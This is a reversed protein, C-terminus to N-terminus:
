ATVARKLSILIATVNDRSNRKHIAEEVLDQVVRQPDQESTPMLSLRRRVFDVAEQSSFVDFLGDCALLLFEDTPQLIEHRIEPVAVVLPAEGTKLKKYDADGFARSVALRGLVRRNKVFGGAMLIRQQEDPRDPKHDKSLQVAVGRRSLVVRADGCNACWLTKGLIVVAVAACGPGSRTVIANSAGKSGADTPLPQALFVEDIITFGRTLSFHMESALMELPVNDMGGTRAFMLEQFVHALHDRVFKACERGGHGDYVAFFSSDITSSLQLDHIASEEDEMTSRCGQQGAIGCNFRLVVFELSGIEFVDGPQLREHYLPPLSLWVSEQRSQTDKTHIAAIPIDRPRVPSMWNTGPIGSLDEYSDFPLLPDHVDRCAIRAVYEGSDFQIELDPLYCTSPSATDFLADLSMSLKLEPNQRRYTKLWRAARSIKIRRSETIETRFHRLEKSELKREFALYTPPPVSDAASVQGAAGRSMKDGCSSSSTERVVDTVESSKSFNHLKSFSMAVLLCAGCLQIRKTKQKKRRDSSLGENPSPSSLSAGDIELAVMSQCQTLEEFDVFSTLDFEHFNFGGKSAQSHGATRNGNIFSVAQLGSFAYDHIEVSASDTDEDCKSPLTAQLCLGSMSSVSSIVYFTPQESTSHDSTTLHLKRENSCRDTLLKSAATRQNVVKQHNSPKVDFPDSGLQLKQSSSALSVQDDDSGQSATTSTVDCINVRDSTNQCSTGNRFSQCSDGSNSGDDPSSRENENSVVKWLDQRLTSTLTPQFKLYRRSPESNVRRGRRVIRIGASRLTACRYNVEADDFDSFESDVLVGDVDSQSDATATNSCSFSEGSRFSHFKLVPEAAM